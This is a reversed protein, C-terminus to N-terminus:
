LLQSRQISGFGSISVRRHSCNVLSRVATECRESFDVCGIQQAISPPEAIEFLHKRASTAFQAQSHLRVPRLNRDAFM